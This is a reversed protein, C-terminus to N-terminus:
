QGRGMIQEFLENFWNVIKEDSRFNTKLTLPEPKLDGIGHLQTKIFLGVEAERFRYISQM